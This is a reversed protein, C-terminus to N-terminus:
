PSWCSTKMIGSVAWEVPSIAIGGLVMAQMNSQQQISDASANDSRINYDGAHCAPPMGKFMSSLFADLTLFEATASASRAQGRLLQHRQKPQPYPQLYLCHFSCIDLEPWNELDKREYWGVVLFPQGNITITQGSPGRLQLPDGQRGPCLRQQHESHGSPVARGGGAATLKCAGYQDSGLVVQIMDEWNEYHQTSLTKAGYKIIM